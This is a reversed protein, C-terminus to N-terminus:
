KLQARLTKASSSNEFLAATGHILSGNQNSQSRDRSQKRPELSSCRSKKEATSEHARLEGM